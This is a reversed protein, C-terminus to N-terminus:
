DMVVRKPSDQGRDERGRWGSVSVGTVGGNGVGNGWRKVGKESGVGGVEGRFDLRVAFHGDFRIIVVM